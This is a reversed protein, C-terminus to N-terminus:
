LVWSSRFAAFQSPDRCIMIARIEILAMHRILVLVFDHRPRGVLKFRILGPLQALLEHTLLKRISGSQLWVERDTMLILSM